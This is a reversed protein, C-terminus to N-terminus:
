LVILMPHGKFYKDRGIYSFVSEKSCTNVICVDLIFYLKTVTLSFLFNFINEITHLLKSPVKVYVPQM